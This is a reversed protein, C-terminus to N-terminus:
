HAAIKEIQLNKYTQILNVLMQLTIYQAATLQSTIIQHYLEPLMKILDSSDLKLGIKKVM